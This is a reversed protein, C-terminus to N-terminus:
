LYIFDLDTSLVTQTPLYIDTTRIKGSHTVIEYKAYSGENQRHAILTYYHQKKYSTAMVHGERKMKDLYSEFSHIGPHRTLVFSGKFSDIEDEKNEGMSIIPVDDIMEVYISPFFKPDQVGAFQISKTPRRLEILEHGAEAKIPKIYSQRLAINIGREKQRSIFIELFATVTPPVATAGSVWRRVTSSDIGLAEALRTQWGYGFLEPGVSKLDEATM